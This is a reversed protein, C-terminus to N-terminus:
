DKKIAVPVGNKIEILGPTGVRNGKEDFQILGTVGQYQIKALSKQVKERDPYSDRIAEIILNMGDFSYAAALGPFSGYTKKYERSFDSSNSIGLEGPSVLSVGEFGKLSQATLSQEGIVSITGFIPLNMKINRIQDIIRLSAATQGFLVICKVGAKKVQYALGDFDTISNNYFFQLPDPKGALKARKLFSNLAFKSDYGTDAVLAIETIKRNGYIEEIISSAQQLDNPVCSFFWPVFAQSLTPDSAWASLFVVRAKTTVQEVLHANRGDHSGLIAWVNEDFILNVAQKSGTGWPGEMSRVILEIPIGKVGGTDNAKRISLEAGQRAEVSKNNTILLGIKITNKQSAIPLGAQVNLSALTLYTFFVISLFHIKFFRM